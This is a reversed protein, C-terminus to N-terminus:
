REIGLKYCVDLYYQSADYGQPEKILWIETHNVNPLDGGFMINCQTNHGKSNLYEKIRECDREVEQQYFLKRVKNSMRIEKCKKTRMATEYENIRREVIRKTEKEEKKGLSDFKNKCYNITEISYGQSFLLQEMNGYQGCKIESILVKNGITDIYNGNNNHTIKCSAGCLQLISVFAFDIEKKQESVTRPPDSIMVDNHAKKIENSTMKLSAIALPVGLLFLGM